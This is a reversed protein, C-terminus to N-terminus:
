GIYKRVNRVVRRDSDKLKDRDIGDTIIDSVEDLEEWTVMAAHRLRLYDKHGGTGTSVRKRLDEVPMPIWGKVALYTLWRRHETQALLDLVGPEQLMEEYISLIRSIRTRDGETEAARVAEAWYVAQEFGSYKRSAGEAGTGTGAAGAGGGASERRM